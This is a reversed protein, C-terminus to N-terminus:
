SKLATRVSGLLGELSFPKEVIEFVDLAKFESEIDEKPSTTMVMIRMKQDKQRICQVVGLGGVGSLRYEVLLLDPSIENIIKLGEECTLAVRVDYGFKNFFALYAELAIEQDDIVVIRKRPM